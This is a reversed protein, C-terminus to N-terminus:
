NLFDVHGFGYLFVVGSLCTKFNRIKFNMRAMKDTLTSTLFIKRVLLFFLMNHHKLFLFDIKQFYLKKSFVRLVLEPQSRQM